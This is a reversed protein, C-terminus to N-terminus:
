SRKMFRPHGESARDDAYSIDGAHTIFQAQGGQILQATLKATPESNSVGMDGYAIWSIPYAAEGVQPATTFHYTSSWGGDDSGVRYCYQTATSLGTIVGYHLSFSTINFATYNSSTTPAVSSLSNSNPGYQIVGQYGVPTSVNSTAFAVLMQTPDHTFALRIQEPPCLQALAFHASACALTAVFRSPM